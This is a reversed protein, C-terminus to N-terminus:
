ESIYRQNKAHKSRQRNEECAIGKDLADFFERIPAPDFKRMLSGIYQIQRNSPNHKNITKATMVAALIDAHLDIRELQRDTLKVLREGLCQLSLAAKKKQTKSLREPQDNIAQGPEVAKRMDRKRVLGM